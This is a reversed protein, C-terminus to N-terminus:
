RVIQLLAKPLRVNTVATGFSARANARPDREAIELVINGLSDKAVRLLSGPRPWRRARPVRQAIWEHDRHDIVIPEELRTLERRLIAAIVIHWSSQDFPERNEIRRQVADLVVVEAFLAFCAFVIPTPRSLM